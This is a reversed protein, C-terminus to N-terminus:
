TTNGYKNQMVTVVHFNDSPDGVSKLVDGSQLSVGPFM